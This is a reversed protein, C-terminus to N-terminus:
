TFQRFSFLGQREIFTVSYLLFAALEAPLDISLRFLKTRFDFVYKREFGDIRFLRLRIRDKM